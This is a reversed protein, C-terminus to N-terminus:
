PLNQYDEETDIDISGEPFSITAVDEQYLALLKKAGGPGDLQELADFYPKAFLVPTGITNAYACAIIGKGTEASKEILRQFLEASIFPQDCVAIIVNKVEANSQLKSIGAAIGTGMGEQWHENYVLEASHGTVATSVKLANAGTVIMVPDLKANNAEDTIHQILPQGQYVLLQKPKGLRSSNGAALIIIATENM